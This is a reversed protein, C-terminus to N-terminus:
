NIWNVDWLRFSDFKAESLAASLIRAVEHNANELAITVSDCTPLLGEQLLITAMSNLGAKAVRGFAIRTSRPNWTAGYQLLLRFIAMHELEIASVIAQPGDASSKHIDAGYELLARVIGFRGRRTAIQLPSSQPYDYPVNPNAGKRLLLRVVTEDAYKCAAWLPNFDEFTLAQHGSAQAGLHFLHLALMTHGFTAAWRLFFGLRKGPTDAEYDGLLPFARTFMAVSSTKQLGQWICNIFRTNLGNGFKWRPELLFDLTDFHAYATAGRFACTSTKKWDTSLILELAENNAHLAAAQAPHGFLSSGDLRFGVKPLLTRLLPLHNVYAAAVLLHYDFNKDDETVRAWDGHQVQRGEIITLSCLSEVCRRVAADDPRQTDECLIEAIRRITRLPPITHKQDSFIQWVFYAKLFTKEECKTEDLLRSRFLVRKVDVAWQKNVLRLRLGLRVGRALVAQLLTEDRLECPLDSIIVM